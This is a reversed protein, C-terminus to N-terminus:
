YPLTVIFETFEGPISEVEFRGNHQQVVIDYSISLGLGTNGEGTPKTTFFPSFIKERIKQPIGTGNDRIRIEVVANESKTKVSIEPTYDKLNEKQKEQLAYCANNLINLLVRGIDQQVVEIPVLSKDYNKQINVNFTSDIAKYGHYALNINEEVLSNIDTSRREGKDGRAHDMMSRVIRDARKGNDLIDIANQKLEHIIESLEEFDEKNITDKQSALMEVLDDALEISGEAFNNVFNLPNKIEHAIGATLQGLSALKEQVFLQDQTKIFDATMKRMEQLLTAKAFASIAHSRFRSLKRADSKDFASFSSNNDFLLFGALEGELSISMAMISKSRTLNFVVQNGSEKNRRIIYIGKVVEEAMQAFTSRIEQVTMTLKKFIKLDYGIAAIFGFRDTEPNYILAAGQQAQPFLKVGQELLTKIVKNFEIERGIIKVINDLTALENASERLEKSRKRLSINKQSLARTREKVKEELERESEKLAQVLKQENELASKQAVYKEKKEVNIRDQVAISFLVLLAFAGIQISWNTIFNSPIIGFSKFAFLLVGLFYLGWAALFFYATRVGSRLCYLATLVLVIVTIIGFAAGLRISVAYPIILSLVMGIIFLISKVNLIKDWIPANKSTILLSRTLQNSTLLSAFIFLSINVNAWWTWNPWIYQFALGNLSFQALGWSILFLVNYVYSKDLFGIYLFINYIIMILVAGYFIGFLIMQIANNEYFERETWFTLPFNMSSSTQFRLYYTNMQKPKEVLDFIYNRHNIQRSSFPLQDGTKIVRFHQQEGPIYLDVFDLLPYGVELYWNIRYDLPNHVTLKVWYVSSTFGFGPEEAASPSFHGSMEPHIVNDITLKGNKDELIEIKKGLAEHNGASSLTFVLNRAHIINMSLIIIFFFVISLRIM